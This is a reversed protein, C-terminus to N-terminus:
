IDGDIADDLGAQLTSDFKRVIPSNSDNETDTSIGPDAGTMDSAEIGTYLSTDTGKAQTANVGHTLQLQTVFKRNGEGDSNFSHIIGEIHFVTEDFEINDGVVIPQQIGESELNGTLTLHQGMLFDSLLYMWAGAGRNIVDEAACAVTRMYPRMGSRAIDLDDRVPQDRVFAGTKNTGSKEGTEGQVHIFNFRLADSRGVDFSKLFVPHIRWRPLELFNTTVIKSTFPNKVTGDAANNNEAKVEALLSFDKVGATKIPKPTFTKSLLGSSFPIQRLVFTPFISGSPSARLCTYTENVTPNKFQEIMSWATIQGTTAPVSPTFIGLQPIGTFRVKESYETGSPQFVKGRLPVLSGTSGGNDTLTVNGINTADISIDLGYSQIGHIVELLDTYATLGHPKSGGEIGFVKAVQSPVVFSYPNDAGATTRPGKAISQNTPIGSGFFIQLLVPVIKNIAVGTGNSAIVENLQIGYRQLWDSMLGVSKLQLYPEFYISGDFETFGAATLLFSSSKTGMPGMLLRKRVANAKGFFKLGDNFENCPEGNKLRSVLSELAEKSQVMWCFVYDGPMIEALYNLGPRLSVSLSDIHSNKSGNSHAAAVDDVIILPSQHLETARSANTSFSEGKSRSFTVPWRHRFVAVVCGASLTIRDAEDDKLGFDALIDYTRM